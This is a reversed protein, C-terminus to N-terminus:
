RFGDDRVTLVPVAGHPTSPTLESVLV